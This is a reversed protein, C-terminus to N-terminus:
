KSLIDLYVQRRRMIKKFIKVAKLQDDTNGYVDSFSINDENDNFKVCKLIHDEDEISNKDECIRCQLNKFQSKFNQKVDLMKTRLTFLLQVEEKSFRRDSFYQKVEIKDSPINRSKSHKKKLEQLYKLAAKGIKEEVISKFKQKTMSAIEDDSELIDYKKREESVICFWDGPNYQCKQAQYVKRILENTDRHLLHWLYMFRRKSLTFRLPYKGLELFYAETATKSHSNLIKKMLNLDSQELSQVHKAQVNHWVESNVLISNTFLADRLVMAIDFHFSGLCVSSLISSIQSIIGVAKQSRQKVTEDITGQESIIDGLYSAHKVNKMDDAHVKLVQPCSDSKKCIHIKFCKDQSLRLKKHEMKANIIANLELSEDGCSALGMVDDIMALAPVDVTNKYKFLGSGTELCDRGLTDM